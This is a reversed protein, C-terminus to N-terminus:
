AGEGQGNTANTYHPTLSAFWADADAAKIRPQSGITVVPLLGAKAEAYFLGRGIGYAKCFEHITYLKKETTTMFPGKELRRGRHATETGNM